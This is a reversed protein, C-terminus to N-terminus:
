FFNLIYFCIRVYGPKQGKEYSYGRPAEVDGYAFGKLNQAYGMSLSFAALVALVFHKKMFITKFENIEGDVIFLARVRVYTFSQLTLAKERFCSATQYKNWSQKLITRSCIENANWMIYVHLSFCVFIHDTM